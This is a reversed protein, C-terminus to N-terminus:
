NTGHALPMGSTRGQPAWGRRGVWAGTSEDHRPKFLTREKGQSGTRCRRRKRQARLLREKATGLRSNISQGGGGGEGYPRPTSAEEHGPFGWFLVLAFELTYASYLLIRASAFRPATKQRTRCSNKGATSLPLGAGVWVRVAAKEHQADGKTPDLWKQPRSNAAVPALRPM